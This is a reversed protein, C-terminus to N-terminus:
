HPQKSRLWQFVAWTAELDEKNYLLIQDMVEKQLIENETETAEIYKAMSWQGGYEEQTRPFGVYREVVKLSYSPLPLAISKRTIPLLDCLNRLVRDAIGEKDGFREIYMNINTKEYHHWHVFPLDGYEEFIKQALRLFEEWGEQDGNEGFKATAAKYESPREGYVKVGWMYIKNLEDLHPPLGELDFMVYNPSKPLNPSELLQEKGSSFARAMRLISGAKSGVKQRRKGWPRQYNSLRSEDFALLFEDITHINEEHLAFALGQDVGDVLAVDRSSEARPWCYQHFGCGNCKTWGVPAFPEEVALRHNLLENMFALVTSDGQPPIEIIEGTGSHVELSSPRTGYNQQYLWGYIHLQQFVEPHDKETIRRSMKSDRIKYTSGDEILFDPGGVIECEIGNVETTAILLGQYIVPTRSQIHVRTQNARDEYPIQSLDVVDSFTTLHAMEHRDGLKRLVEEYPGPKPEQIQRYRLYVRRSCNSPQYLSYTDSARIIMNEPKM